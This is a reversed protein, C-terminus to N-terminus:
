QESTAATTRPLRLLASSGPLFPGPRPVNLVVEVTGSGPEVAPAVRVVRAEVQAGAADVLLAATGPRLGRADHEAIRASARLPQLATIRYLADGERVARGVGTHRRTVVGAFPAVVRRYDLDVQAVRMDAEATRLEYQAKDLEQATVYGSAHLGDIRAHDARARELAATAAAVRAAERSDDLRALVQGARVADGLDAHITTIVGTARAAVDADLDSYLLAPVTLEAAAADRAPDAPAAPGREGPVQHSVAYATPAAVTAALEDLSPVERAKVEPGCAVLAAACLPLIRNSM